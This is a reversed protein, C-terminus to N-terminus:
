PVVADGGELSVVQMGPGVVLLEVILDHFNKFGRAVRGGLM